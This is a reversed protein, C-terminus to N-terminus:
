ETPASPAPHLASIEVASHPMLDGEGNAVDSRCLQDMRLRNQPPLTAYGGSWRRPSFLFDSDWFMSAKSLAAYRTSHAKGRSNTLIGNEATEAAESRTGLKGNTNASGGNCSLAEMRRGSSNKVTQERLSNNDKAM